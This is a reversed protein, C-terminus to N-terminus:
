NGEELYILYATLDFLPRVSMGSKSQLILASTAMRAGYYPHVLSVKVNTFHEEEYIGWNSRSLLFNYLDDINYKLSLLTLYNIILAGLDETFNDSINDTLIDNEVIALSESLDKFVDEINRSQGIEEITKRVLLFDDIPKRRTNEM